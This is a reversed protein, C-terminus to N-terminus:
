PLLNLAHKTFKAHTVPCMTRTKMGYGSVTGDIIATDFCYHSVFVMFLLPVLSVVVLSQTLYIKGEIYNRWGRFYDFHHIKVDVIMTVIDAVVQCLLLSGYLTAQHQWKVVNGESDVQNGMLSVVCVLVIAFYDAAMQSIQEIVRQQRVTRTNMQLESKEDGHSDSHPLVVCVFLLDASLHFSITATIM